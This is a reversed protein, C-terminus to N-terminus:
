KQSLIEDRILLRKAIRKFIPAAVQGGYYKKEDPKEIVVAIVWRPKDAPLFGVFSAIYEKKGYGEKTWIQSTGTKGAVKINKLAANVGTGGDETVKILMKKEKEATSSSIVKRRLLKSYRYIEKEDKMVSKVVFPRYLVGGNAIVSMASALQLPTAKMGQGFSRTVLDADYWDRWNGILGPYEAPLEIGTRGGFGFKVLINYLGKKGLKLAIKSVGINSSYKIIESVNLNDKKEHDHIHIGGVYFRGNELSFRENEKIVGQDLAGSVVFPKM